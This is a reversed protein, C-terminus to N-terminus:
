SDPSVLGSLATPRSSRRKMTSSKEDCNTSTRGAADAAYIALGWFVALAPRDLLTNSLGMGLVAAGLAMQGIKSLIEKTKMVAVLFLAMGFIGFEMLITVLDSHASKEEWWWLTTIRYDSYAGSGFLKTILDSSVFVEFRTLWADVRGSGLAGAGLQGVTAGSVSNEDRYLVSAGILSASALLVVWNPWGRKSALWFVAFVAVMLMETAGGYSVLLVLGAGGVLLKQFRRWPSTWVIIVLAGIVIASSHFGEAGGVFPSARRVGAVTIPPYVVAVFCAYGIIAGAAASVKGRIDGAPLRVFIFLAALSVCYRLLADFNQPYGVWDMTLSVLVFFLVLSFIPFSQLWNLMVTLVLGLIVAGVLLTSVAPRTAPALNFGLAYLIAVVVLLLAVTRALFDTPPLRRLSDRRVASPGPSVAGLSSGLPAYARGEYQRREAWSNLQKANLQSIRRM